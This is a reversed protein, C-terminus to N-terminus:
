DARALFSNIAINSDIARACSSTRIILYASRM